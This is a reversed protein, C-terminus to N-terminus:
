ISQELVALEAHARCGTQTDVMQVYSYLGSGGGMTGVWSFFIKRDSSYIINPVTRSYKQISTKSNINILDVGITQGAKNVLLNDNDQFSLPYFRNRKDGIRFIPEGGKIPYVRTTGDDDFNASFYQSNPSLAILPVWSFYKNISFVEIGSTIDLIKITDGTNGIIYSGDNTLKLVDIRGKGSISKIERGSIVDWIKITGGEDGSVIKTGDQNWVGGMTNRSHGSLSKVLSGDTVNYIEIFKKNPILLMSGDPSYNIFSMANPKYKPPAIQSKLQNSTEVLHLSFSSMAIVDPIVYYSKGERFEGTINANGSAKGFPGMDMSYYVSLVHKGVPIEHRTKQAWLVKKGDVDTIVLNEPICIFANGSSPLVDKFTATSACGMFMIAVIGTLALGTLWKVNKM